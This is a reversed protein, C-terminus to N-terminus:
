ERDMGNEKEKLQLIKEYLQTLYETNNKNEKVKEILIEMKDWQRIGTKRTEYDESQAKIYILCRKEKLYELIEKYHNPEKRAKKQVNSNTNQVDVKVRDKFDNKNSKEALKCEEEIKEITIMQSQIPVHKAFEKRSGIRKAEKLNGEQIAITIMQSQIPSYNIFEEQNGIRKAEEWKEEQMAITIM